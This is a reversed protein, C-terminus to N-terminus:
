ALYDESQRKTLSELSSQIKGITKEFDSSLVDLNKDAYVTDRGSGGSLTDRTRDKAYLM